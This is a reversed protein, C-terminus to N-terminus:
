IIIHNDDKWNFLSKDFEDRDFNIYYFVDNFPTNEWISRVEKKPFKEKLFKQIANDEQRDRSIITVKCPPIPIDTKKLKEVKIIVSTM